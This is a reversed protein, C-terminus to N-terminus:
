SPVKDKSLYYAILGIFQTVLSYVMVMPDKWTVYFIMAGTIALFVVAPIPYIPMQFTEHSVQDKRMRLRILGIVALMTFISLTVSIYQIIEQFSSVFVLFLSWGAQLFIAPWPMGFRNSKGMWSLRPYTLGIAEGVRPGAIIMASLTSLLAMGFIGSFLRANEKGFLKVAVVNGIDPQGKLEPMDVVGLFVANLALYLVTVVLTGLLISRPINREPNELNGAIYASANWGSYAYVVYVLSIAWGPSLILNLDGSNPEFSKELGDGFLFPAACFFLILTLKLGTLVSQALGGIRVGFFHIVTVLIIASAAIAIESLGFLEETYAGIALAVASIAGAFGVTLSTWGSLFGLAPHFIKSLYIFEGGSYKLRTALEAYCLAGFFSVVGGALWLMLIAFRSPVPEVQYGLSTFVGTGVMNAIVLSIAAHLSYKVNSM